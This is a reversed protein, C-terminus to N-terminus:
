PMDINGLGVSDYNYGGPAGGHNLQTFRAFQAHGDVFLFSLGQGHASDVTPWGNGSYPFTDRSDIEYMAMSLGAQYLNSVCKIKSAKQKAKALAPLLMAALIAVIAMVVLLEIL